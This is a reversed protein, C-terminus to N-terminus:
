AALTITPDQGCPNFIIDVTQTGSANVTTIKLEGSVIKNEAACAADRHLPTMTEIQLSRTVGDKTRSTSGDIMFDGSPLPAHRSFTSGPDATFKVLWAKALTRTGHLSSEHAVTTTDHAEFGADDSTLQWPGNVNRLFFNSNSFTLKQQLQNFELRLGNTALPPDSITVSGSLEKTVEGGPWTSTCTTPDFTLTLIDPVGDGDTDVPTAPDLTPCGAPPNDFHMPGHFLRLAGPFFGFRCSMLDPISGGSSFAAVETQMEDGIVQADAQTLPAANGPANSDSSSCAALTLGIAAVGISFRM